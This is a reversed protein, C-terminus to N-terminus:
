GLRGQGSRPCQALIAHELGLRCDAKEGTASLMAALHYVAHYRGEELVKHVAGEDTADLHLFRSRMVGEDDPVRIDSVDVNGVGNQAQLALVLEIGLQGAAGIVLIKAM